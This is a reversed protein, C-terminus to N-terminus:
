KPGSEGKSRVNAGCHDEHLDEVSEARCLWATSQLKAGATRPGPHCEGDSDEGDRWGVAEGEVGSTGCLGMHGSPDELRLSGGPPGRQSTDMTNERDDGQVRTVFKDGRYYDAEYGAKENTQLSWVPPSQAPNREWPIGLAWCKGLVCLCKKSQEGCSRDCRGHCRVSKTKM